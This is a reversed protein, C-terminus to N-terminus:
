VVMKQTIIYLNGYKRQYENLIELSSDTSGDNVCIIQYKYKTIQNCISDLCKKLYKESNYVPIIVSLDFKENAIPADLFTDKNYLNKRPYSEIIKVCEGDKRASVINVKSLVPLIMTSIKYLSQYIIKM